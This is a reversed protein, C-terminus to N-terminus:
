NTNRGTYKTTRKELKSSPPSYTSRCETVGPLVETHINYLTDLINLYKVNLIEVVVV